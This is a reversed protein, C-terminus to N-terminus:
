AKNAHSFLTIAYKFDSSEAEADFLMKLSEEVYIWLDWRM